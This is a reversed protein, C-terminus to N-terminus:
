VFPTFNINYVSPNEQPPEQPDSDYIEINGTTTFGIQDGVEQFLTAAEKSNFAWIKMGMIAKGDPCNFANEINKSVGPALITYHKFSTKKIGYKYKLKWDSENESM